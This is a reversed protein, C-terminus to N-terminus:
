TNQNHEVLAVRDDALAQERAALDGLEVLGLAVEDRREDGGRRPEAARGPVALRELAACDHLNAALTRQAAARPDREDLEAPADELAPVGATTIV